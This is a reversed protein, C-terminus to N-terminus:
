LFFIFTCHTVILARNYMYRCTRITVFLTSAYFFDRRLFSLYLFKVPYISVCMNPIMWSYALTFKILFLSFLLSIQKRILNLLELVNM